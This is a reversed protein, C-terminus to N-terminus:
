TSHFWSSLRRRLPCPLPPSTHARASKASMASACNLKKSLRFGQMCSTCAVCVHYSWSSPLNNDVVVFSLLLAGACTIHCYRDCVDCQVWGLHLKPKYATHMCVCAVDAAENVSVTDSSSEETTNRVRPPPPAATTAERADKSVCQASVAKDM